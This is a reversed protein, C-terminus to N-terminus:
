PNPLQVRVNQEELRELITLLIDTVSAYMMAYAERDGYIYDGPWCHNSSEYRDFIQSCVEQQEQALQESTKPM